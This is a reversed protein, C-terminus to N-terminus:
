VLYKKQVHLDRRSSSGSFWCSPPWRL